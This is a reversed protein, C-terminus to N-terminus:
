DIVIDLNGSVLSVHCCDAAVTYVVNAVEQGGIFGKFVIERSTNQNGPVFLDDYLPYSGENRQPDNDIPRTLDEGTTADRVEFEDLAVPMDSSDQVNVSFSVFIETCAVGTCSIQDDDNKDSCNWIALMLTSLFLAKKM